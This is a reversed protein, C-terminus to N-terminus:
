EHSVQAPFAPLQTFIEEATIESTHNTLVVQRLGASDALRVRGHTAQETDALWDILSNEDLRFIIGPSNPHYLCEDVTIMSRTGLVRFLFSFLAFRFVPGTLTVKPGTQLRYVRDQADFSLLGLESLPCEIRDEFASQQKGTPPTTYTRLCVEVERKIVSETTQLGHRLLYRQATQEFSERTFEADYVATFLVHWLLARHRNTALRFHLLWLSTPDELFPDIGQRGLLYAGFQSLKLETARGVTPLEILVGTALAWHRIARVMNKGVGLKVLAEDQSFLDGSDQVLAVGKELWGYRLVFTEHGGFTPKGSPFDLEAVLAVSSALVSM